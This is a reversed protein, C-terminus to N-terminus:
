GNNQRNHRRSIFWMSLILMGLPVGFATSANFDINALFSFLM